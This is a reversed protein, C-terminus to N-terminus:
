PQDCDPCLGHQLRRGCIDCHIDDWSYHSTSTTNENSM